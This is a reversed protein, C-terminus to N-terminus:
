LVTEVIDPLKAFKKELQELSKGKTEPLFIIVFVAAALNFLGFTWIAFWFRVLQVYELFLGIAVASTAWTVIMVLGSALGRVTLPLLESLLIWPIPGIGIAFSFRYLVVSVIALPGFHANCSEVVTDTPIATSNSFGESCLSDRTVFFHIGLMSCGLFMGTSSLVLLTVRGLFDVLFFAAVNGFLSAIGIGYVAITRPDEFGAESLITAAFTATASIGSAQQFFFTVIVLIFPILVSRKSFNKLISRKKKKVPFTKKIEDLEKQIGIKKGRLWILVHEAQEVYRKSVLWRPTEPLWFMLVEFLAVTGVAVLSINYYRFNDIAGVALGFAIGLTFLAQSVAGVVGRLQISSVEGLYM